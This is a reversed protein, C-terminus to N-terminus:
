IMELYLPVKGHVAEPSSASSPMKQSALAQFVSKKAASTGRAGGGVDVKLIRHCSETM